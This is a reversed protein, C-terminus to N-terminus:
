EYAKELRQNLAAIRVRYIKAQKCAEYIEHIHGANVGQDARVLVELLSDQQDPKTPNPEYKGWAEAEFRLKDILEAKNYAQGSIKILGAGSEAGAQTPAIVVNIKIERTEPAPVQLDASSAVPLVLEEIDLNSLETVIMFFIILLFVIDIMPTMDMEVGADQKVYKHMEM